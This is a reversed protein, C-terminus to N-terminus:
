KKLRYAMVWEKICRTLAFIGFCYYVTLLVNAPSGYLSIARLKENWKMMFGWLSISYLELFVTLLVGLMVIWLMFDERKKERILKITLLIFGLMAAAFVIPSLLRYGDVIGNYLSCIVQKHFVTTNNTDSLVSSANIKSLQQDSRPLVTGFFEEWTVINEEAAEKPEHIYLDKTRNEPIRADHYNGTEWVGAAAYGLNYFIDPMEMGGIQSSLFVANRKKLKGSDFAAQLEEAIKGYYRDTEAGDRYHGAAAVADRMVWEIFDIPVEDGGSSWARTYKQINMKAFTPSAESAMQIMKPSAWVLRTMNDEDSDIQYLLGMVKACNSQTRDNVVSVGYVRQNIEKVAATSMGIGLVPAFALIMTLFVYLIKIPKVMTMSVPWPDFDRDNSRPLVLFRDIVIVLGGAILLPFIWLSDERLVWFWGASVFGLIAWPVWKEPNERVRAYIGIVSAIILLALWPSLVNRYVRAMPYFSVPCYLLVLYLIACIGKKKFFPAVALAFIGASFAIILGIAMGYPIHFFKIFALFIPFGPGKALAANSYPGMWQGNYIYLGRIIQLLDDHGWNRLVFPFDCIMWLRFLTLGLLLIILWKKTKEKNFATLQLEM